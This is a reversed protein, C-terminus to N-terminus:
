CEEETRLASRPHQLLRLEQRHEAPSWLLAQRPHGQLLLTSFVFHVVKNRRRTLGYSFDGEPFFNHHRKQEKGFMVKRLMVEQLRSMKVTGMM